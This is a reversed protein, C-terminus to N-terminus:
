GAATSETLEELLRDCLIQRKLLVRRIEAADTRATEFKLGPLYDHLLERLTTAEDDSLMLNM